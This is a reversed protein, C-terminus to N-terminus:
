TLIIHNDRKSFGEIKKDSNNKKLEVLIDILYKKEGSEIRRTITEWFFKRMFVTTKAGFMKLNATHVITPLFFIALLEWGRVYNNKFIM